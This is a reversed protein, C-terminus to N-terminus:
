EDDTDHSDWLSDFEEQFEQHYMEDAMDEVPSVLPGSRTGLVENRFQDINSYKSRRGM